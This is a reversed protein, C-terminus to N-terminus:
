GKIFKKFVRYSLTAGLVIVIVPISASIAGTIVTGMATALATFDM